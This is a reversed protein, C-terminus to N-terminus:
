VITITGTYMGMGCAYDLQGPALTGLEIRREGTVPLITQENRSPIVFSRICGQANESRVILTTPLGARVQINDPSYASSTATIVVVQHGDVASVTSLDPASGVLGVTQPIRSAALPSGALELGGNVTFLGLSIVALGTLAALRGRWATAAKRAAYGLVAFLPGTGLVFVAMTVAGALASGSTLALAEVSLTVGCPILVTALGLLAPALAVQSRARNRVIGM